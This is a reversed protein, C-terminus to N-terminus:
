RTLDLVEPAHNSPFDFRDDAGPVAKLIQANGFSDGFGRVASLDNVRGRGSQM